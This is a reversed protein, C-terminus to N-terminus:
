VQALGRETPYSKRPASFNIRLHDTSRRVPDPGCFRGVKGKRGGERWGGDGEVELWCVEKRRVVVVEEEERM